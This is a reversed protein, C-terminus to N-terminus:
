EEITEGCQRCVRMKEGSHYVFGVRTAENCHPCVLMVKSLNIPLEEDVVGAQRASAGGATQAAKQHKKVMNYGEVIVKNEKTFVERVTGVAGKDEGIIIEVKDGKRIRQM